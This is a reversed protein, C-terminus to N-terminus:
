YLHFHAASLPDLFLASETFESICSKPDDTHTLLINKLERDAEINLPNFHIGLRHDEVRIISGDNAILLEFKHHGPFLLIQCVQDTPPIKQAYALMGRLSLDELTVEIPTDGAPIIQAPISLKIRLNDRNNKM